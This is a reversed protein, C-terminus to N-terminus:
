IINAAKADEAEFFLFGSVHIEVYPSKIKKQMFVHISDIPHENYEDTKYVPTIGM